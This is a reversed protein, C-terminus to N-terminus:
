KGSLKGAQALLTALEFAVQVRDYALKVAGACLGNAREYLGIMAASPAARAADAVRRPGLAMLAEFRAAAGIAQFGRAFAAADSGRMVGDIAVGLGKLDLGAYRLAEGPSGDCLAVLEEHAAADAEPMVVRLVARMEAEALGGFRLMRCRSRITPLLRGPAHSVLFFVTHRPPEELNKLFANAGARGMDDVSDIIVTRWDGLGPTTRFLPQLDRVQDVKIEAAVKGKEDVERQLVRHDMHSGAAVLRAAPHEPDVLLGDGGGALLRLAAADAFARKGVGKPGALLWAHHMRGGSLADLFQSVQADHGILMAGRHCGLRM